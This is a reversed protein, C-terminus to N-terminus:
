ANSDTVIDIEVSNSTSNLIDFHDNIWARAARLAERCAYLSCRTRSPRTYPYGLLLTRGDTLLRYRQGRWLQLVVKKWDQVSWSPVHLAMGGARRRGRLTDESPFARASVHITLKCHPRPDLTVLRAVDRTLSATAAPGEQGVAAQGNSRSDLPVLGSETTARSTQIKDTNLWVYRRGDVPRGERLLVYMHSKSVGAYAAAEPVSAFRKEVVDDGDPALLCVSRTSDGQKQQQDDIEFAYKRGGVLRGERLVVYMHPKSLGAHGAAEQINAFEREATKGNTELLYVPRAPRKQHKAKNLTTLLSESKSRVRQSRDLRSQLSSYPVLLLSPISLVAQKAETVSDASELLLDLSPLLSSKLGRMLIRPEQLLLYKLDVPSLLLREALYDMKVSLNQKWNCKALGPARKLLSGFDQLTMNGCRFCFSTSLPRLYNDLSRGWLQPHQLTMDKIDSKSLSLEEFYGLTPELNSSLGYQILSPQKGIAHNLEKVSLGVKTTWFDIRGQMGEVSMGLVSPQRLALGRLENSTLQLYQQLADCKRQLQHASYRSLPPHTKLMAQLHSPGIQLRHRLYLLSDVLLTKRMSTSGREFLEWGAEQSCVVCGPLAQLVVRVQHFEWGKWHLYSYAVCDFNTAGYLADLQKRALQLVVVPTEEYLYSLLTTTTFHSKLSDTELDRFFLNPLMTLAHSLQALSLGAGCGHGYYQLPWDIVTANVKAVVSDQPLPSLLFNIRECLLEVPWALLHPCAELFSEVQGDLWGLTSCLYREIEAKNSESHEVSMQSRPYDNGEMSTGDGGGGGAIPLVDGQVSGTVALRRATPFSRLAEDLWAFSRVIDRGQRRVIHRRFNPSYELTYYLPESADTSSLSSSSACNPISLGRRSRYPCRQDASGRQISGSRFAVCVTSLM